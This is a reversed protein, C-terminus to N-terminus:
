YTFFLSRLRQALAKEEVVVGLEESEKSEEPKREVEPKVEDKFPRELEEFEDEVVAVM